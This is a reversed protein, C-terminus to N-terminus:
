FTCKNVTYYDLKHLFYYLTISHLGSESKKCFFTTIPNTCKYLTISHLGSEASFWTLAQPGCYIIFDLKPRQPSVVITPYVYINVSSSNIPIWNSHNKVRCLGVFRSNCQATGVLSYGLFWTRIFIWIGDYFKMTSYPLIQIKSSLFIQIKSWLIEYGVGM